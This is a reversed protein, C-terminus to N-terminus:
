IESYIRHRGVPRLNRAVKACGRKPCLSGDDGEPHKCPEGHSGILNQFPNRSQMARVFDSIASFRKHLSFVALSGLHQGLEATARSM